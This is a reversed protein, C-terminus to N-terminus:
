VSYSHSKQQQDTERLRANSRLHPPRFTRYDSWLRNAARGEVDSAIVMTSKETISSSIHTMLGEYARM